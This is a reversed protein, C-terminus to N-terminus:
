EVLPLANSFERWLTRQEAWNALAVIKRLHRETVRDRGELTRPLHLIEDQIEPALHLLNMIQTIRARTVGSLRALDAYDRVDGAQVLKEFRHALALLRAVRPVRGPVAPIPEPADGERLHKRGRAGHRFHITTECTWGETRESTARRAAM